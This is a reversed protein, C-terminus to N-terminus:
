KEGRWIYKGSRKLFNIEKKVGNRKNSASMNRLLWGITKSLKFKVIEMIGSLLFEGEQKLPKCHFSPKKRLLFNVYKKRVGNM